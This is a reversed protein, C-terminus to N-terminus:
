FHGRRVIEFIGLLGARRGLRALHGSSTAVSPQGDSRTPRVFAPSFAPLTVPVDCEM